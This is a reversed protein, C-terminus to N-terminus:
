DDRDQKRRSSRESRRDVKPERRAWNLGDCIRLHTGMTEVNALVSPCHPCEIHKLKLHKALMHDKVKERNLFTPIDGHMCIIQRRCLPGHTSNPDHPMYFRPCSSECCVSNNWQSHHTHFHEPLGRNHLADPPPAVRQLGFFTTAPALNEDYIPALNAVKTTNMPVYLHTGATLKQICTGSLSMRFNFSTPVFCSMGPYPNVRIRQETSSSGFSSPTSIDQFTLARYPNQALTSSVHPAEPYSTGNSSGAVSSPQWAPAYAHAPNVTSPPSSSRPPTPYFTSPEPQLPLTSPRCRDTDDFKSNWTAGLCQNNVVSHGNTLVTKPLSEGENSTDSAAAATAGCQWEPGLETFYPLPSDSIQLEDDMIFYEQDSISHTRQDSLPEECGLVQACFSEFASLDISDWDYDIQQSYAVSGRRARAPEENHESMSGGSIPAHTALNLSSRTADM